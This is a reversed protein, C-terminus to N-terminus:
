LFTWKVWGADKRENTVPYAMTYPPDGAVDDMYYTDFPNRGYISSIRRVYPRDPLMSTRTAGGGMTDFHRHNLNIARRLTMATKDVASKAPFTVGWQTLYARTMRYILQPVPQVEDSFNKPDYEGNGTANGAVTSHRGRCAFLEYGTPQATGAPKLPDPKQSDDALFKWRDWPWWPYYTLEIRNDTGMMRGNPRPALASFPKDGPQVGHDWAYVGVYNVVNPPLQTLISYWQGTGPVSDIAFINVPIQRVQDSGYAYLFWAAMVAEVAGRSHGVFNFQRAQSAAALNAGHLALAPASRLPTNFVLPGSNDRPVSWDNEGVGRVSVSPHTARLDGSIEKHIRVPIYGTQRCYIDKNSERRSVEGEDRTCGTGAFCVTFVTSSAGLDANPARASQVSVSRRQSPAEDPAALAVIEFTTSGDVADRNAQLPSGGDNGSGVYRENSAVIVIRQEDLPVLQFTERPGITDSNAILPLSGDAVNSVYRLNGARFTVEMDGQRRMEFAEWRGITSQNAQLPTDGSTGASVYQGNSAKLAVTIFPAENEPEASTM